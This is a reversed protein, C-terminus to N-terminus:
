CGCLRLRTTTCAGNANCCTRTYTQYHDRPGLECPGIRCEGYTETCQTAAPGVSDTMFDGSPGEPLLEKYDVGDGQETSTVGCAAGTLAVVCLVWSLKKM